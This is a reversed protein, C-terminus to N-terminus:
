PTENVVYAQQTNSGSTNAEYSGGAACDGPAGCSVSDLYSGGNNLMSIGPVEEATGWTGTVESIVFPLQTGSSLQYNGGASCNGATACSVSQIFAGGGTNLAQAVEQANGWTGNKEDVVFAQSSTSTNAYDGGAVCDGAAVCSVSIVAANAGVNLAATGPVEEANGWTGGTENVVFAQLTGKSGSYWGGDGCNGASTCSVAGDSATGGVNLAAIGPTEEATGWTGDTENVVFTQAHGNSDTYSGDAGCNGASPCSVSLGDADDDANLAATGPIEEATGWTGDTETDVFAQSDTLSVRYGGVISCNLASGCSVSSVAATNGTNLAATGPIEEANGWTGNTENVVYAQTKLKGNSYMGGASCNGASFCSISYVTALGGTNLAGLGPIEEANGWTGNTENVVFAQQKGASGTYSGGAGCNGTSPCSVAYTEAADDGNLAATGPVEEANGWTGGADTHVGTAVPVTTAPVTTTPVTTTPVTTAPVTTAAQSSGAAGLALILSAGSSLVGAQWL